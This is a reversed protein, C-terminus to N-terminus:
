SRTLEQWVTEMRMSRSGKILVVAGASLLSRARSSLEALSEHHELVGSFGRAQLADFLSKMRSGHLLVISAGSHELPEALEAHFKLEDPGLEKMDALCAMRVSRREGTQSLLEFAAKMSVPSANYYDCIAISGVGTEILGASAEAPAPIIRIQSRGEAGEFTAIGRLLEEPTMGLSAATTVAALLNQANHRGPLPVDLSLLPASPSAPSDGWYVDLKGPGAGAPPIFRGELHRSPIANRHPQVETSELSFSYPQHLMPLKPAIWPDDLNVICLGGQEDTLSLAMNEERAVTAVDQLNELHEPGIVTLLAHTPAVLPVHRAMAGVDDIGVEIVAAGHEARLGILTMPIGLFGNESGQTRHVLPHRGRLLAALLEKTTTKGNSGAVLIVPIDFRRRWAGALSRFAEVVDPVGFFRVEPHASVLGHSELHAKEALVGRAGSAIAAEIFRHGDFSEGRIAVFLAGATIRRSDTLIQTFSTNPANSPLGLVSEVWGSEFSTADSPSSDDTKQNM